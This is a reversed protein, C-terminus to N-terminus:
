FNVNLFLSKIKVPESWKLTQMVSKKDDVSTLGLIGLFFIKGSLELPRRILLDCSEIHKTIKRKRKNICSKVMIIDLPICFNFGKQNLFFFQFHLILVL